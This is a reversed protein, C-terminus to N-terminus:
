SLRGNRCCLRTVACISELAAETNRLSVFHRQNPKRRWAILGLGRYGNPSGAGAADGPLPSGGKSNGHRWVHRSCGQAFCSSPTHRRVPVVKAFWRAQRRGDERLTVLAFVSTEIPAPGKLILNTTGDLYINVTPKWANQCDFVKSLHGCPSRKSRKSTRSTRVHLQAGIIAEAHNRTSLYYLKDCSKRKVRLDIM